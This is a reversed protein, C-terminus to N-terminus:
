LPIIAKERFFALLPLLPMGMITNIDGSVDEFLQHGAGEFHYGGVSNLLAEEEREAYSQLFAESLLRMKLTATSTHNFQEKGNKVVAVASHLKHTHGALRHLNSIAEPLTKAKHLVRGEFELIQDSGIIYADEGRLSLAKAKALELALDSPQLHGLQQQLAAEDLTPKKVGFALGASKMMTQRAMSTSALILSQANLVM